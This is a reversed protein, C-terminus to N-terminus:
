VSGRSIQSHSISNEYKKFCRNCMQTNLNFNELLFWGGCKKCRYYVEQNQYWTDANRIKRRPANKKTQHSDTNMKSIIAGTLPM